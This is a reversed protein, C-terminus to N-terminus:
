PTNGTLAVVAAFVGQVVKAMRKYDLTGATDENTHYHFNRYFATDTIMVAEHGYPWYNRHDSYDIGPVLPPANISFVPLDSAGLMAAKVTRTLGMDQFRGVVGIFNGNDPYLLGMIAAPYTQSGPADSFYGVMELSIMGIVPVRDRNLRAAHAASGMKDTAFFPPEELCYAVLQM